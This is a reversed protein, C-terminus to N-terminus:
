QRGCGRSEMVSRLSIRPVLPRFFKDQLCGFWVGAQYSLQELSFLGVFSVLNLRPKRVFFEVTGVGLHLALVVAGLEPFIPALALACVLYYRSVFSGCHYLFSANCRVAAALVLGFSLSVGLMAGERRRGIADVVLWVAAMVGISWNAAFVAIVFFVWFIVSKPWLVFTKIRDPHLEQLLPESTGYEFRRKCFPWLRNRHKHSVRASPRYEVISGMDIIRWCLDVDEGVELCDDFGGVELFKEKRVALNCSPLYFFRNGMSSDTPHKGMHLASKVKEYRDLATRDDQSDVLGGAADVAPSRFVPLLEKLWSPDASCDSDLFCVIEGDAHRAGWNRCASAGQRQRMRQLTVPFSEVVQPTEDDSADDVVIIEKKDEPYDLGLLSILCARIEDARNRVPVIITVKPTPSMIGLGSSRVWGAKELQYLFDGLAPKDIGSVRKYLDELPSWGSAELHRLLDSLASPLRIAKLPYSMVLVCRCDHEIIRVREGLAYM